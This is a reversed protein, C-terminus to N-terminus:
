HVFLHSQSNSFSHALTVYRHIIKLIQEGTFDVAILMGREGKGEFFSDSFLFFSLFSFCRMKQKNTHSKCKKEELYM